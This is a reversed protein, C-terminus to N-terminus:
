VVVGVESRASVAAVNQRLHAPQTTGVLVSAIEPRTVLGALVRPWEAQGAVVPRAVVATGRQAAQKLVAEAGENLAFQVVRVGGQAVACAAQAISDCSIGWCRIKGQVRWRELTAFVSGDRIVDLPPSHLYYIDIYDTRLRVLSQELMRTLYAPTFDVELAQARRQALADRLAPIRRTLARLPTKFRAALAQHASFKQGGKSAIVVQGRFPRLAEGLLRESDGQGYIDATDFHQIGLDFADRALALWDSRSQGALVSGFKACGLGLSTTRLGTAGLARTIM